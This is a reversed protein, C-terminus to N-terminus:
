AQAVILSSIIPQRTTSRRWSSFGAVQLMDGYERATRPRGQGMAWLYLGFYADGMAEAGKTGALPEAILLRGRSPLARRVSALLARCADDDHDHLIRVLTICDYGCPLEDRFFDGALLDAAGASAGALVEPLDFLGLKLLPYRAAVVNLFTGHGGGLDLLARHRAFDYAALVEGAVMQQSAAMLESYIAANEPDSGAYQWFRSLHTPEARDGRLLAVPDVLDRYLLLNHRIMARAGPNGQLAAGQQGLVWWGPAAEEALDLAVSARLLRLAAPPSLGTARAIEPLNATGQALHDILGSELSAILVQSYAFGASLDFLRAAKHRAVLSFPPIASALRRFRDSALVRNRWTLWRLKRGPARRVPKPEYPM